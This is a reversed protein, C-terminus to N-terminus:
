LKNIEVFRVIDDFKKDEKSEGKKSIRKALLLDIECDDDCNGAWNFNDNNNNDSEVKRKGSDRSYSGVDDKGYSILVYAVNNKRNKSSTDGGIKKSKRVKILDLNELNSLQSYWGTKVIDNSVVYMIRNGWGDTIDDLRLGLERIPPIGIYVGKNSHRLSNGDCVFGTSPPSALKAPKGFDKNNAVISPKAPCPLVRESLSHHSNKLSTKLAKEIKAMKKLTEQKQQLNVVNGKSTVATVVVLSVVTLLVSLEVFTFGKNVSNKGMKKLKSGLNKRKKMFM